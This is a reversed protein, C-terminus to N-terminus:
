VHARGIELLVAMLRFADLEARSAGGAAEDVQPLEYWNWGQDEFAEIKRGPLRQELGLIQLETRLHESINIQEVFTSLAVAPQVPLM